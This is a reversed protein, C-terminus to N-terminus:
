WRATAVPKGRMWAPGDLTKVESMTKKSCVRCLILPAFVCAKESNCGWERVDHWLATQMALFRKAWWGNPLSYLPLCAAVVREHLRQWKRDEDGGIGGDLHHGDNHHITDGFVGHLKRDAGTFIQLLPDAIRLEDETQPVRPVYANPGVTPHPNNGEGNVANGPPVTVRVDADDMTAPTAPHELDSAVMEQTPGGDVNERDAAPQGAVVMLLLVM